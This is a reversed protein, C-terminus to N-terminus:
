ESADIAESLGFNVVPVISIVDICRAADLVIIRMCQVIYRFVHVSRCDQQPMFAPVSHGFLDHSAARLENLASCEFIM